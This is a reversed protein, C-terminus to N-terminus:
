IVNTINREKGPKTHLDQLSGPSGHDETVSIYGDDGVSDSLSTVVETETQVSFM